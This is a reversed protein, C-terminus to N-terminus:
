HSIALLMAYTNDERLSWTPNVHAPRNLSVVLCVPLICANSIPDFSSVFYMLLKIWLYLCLLPRKFSLVNTEGENEVADWSCGSPVMCSSVKDDKLSVSSPVM